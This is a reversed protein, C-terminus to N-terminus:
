ANCIGQNIDHTNPQVSWCVDWTTRLQPDQMFMFAIICPNFFLMYEEIIAAVQCNDARSTPVFVM